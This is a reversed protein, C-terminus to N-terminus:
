ENAAREDIDLAETMSHAGYLRTLNGHREQLSRIPQIGVLKKRKNEARYRRQQEALKDQREIRWDCRRCVLHLVEPTDKAFDWCKRTNPKKQGCVRCRRRLIRVFTTM